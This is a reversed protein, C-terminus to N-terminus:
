SKLTVSILESCSVCHVFLPFKGLQIRVNESSHSFRALMDTTSKSVRTNSPSEATFENLRLVFYLGVDSKFHLLSAFYEFTHFHEQPLFFHLIMNYFWASVLRLM